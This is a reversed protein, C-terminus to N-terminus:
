LAFDKQAAPWLNSFGAVICPGNQEPSNDTIFKVCFDEIDGKGDDVYAVPAVVIVCVAPLFNQQM